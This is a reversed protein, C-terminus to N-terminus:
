KLDENNYFDFLVSNDEKTISDKEIESIKSFDKELNMQDIQLSSFSEQIKKDFNDIEKNDDIKKENVM